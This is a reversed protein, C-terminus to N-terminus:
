INCDDDIDPEIEIEKYEIDPANETTYKELYRYIRNVDLKTIEYNEFIDIIQNDDYKTKLETFFGYLDKKDMGLQQCLNQIFLSNNYETSYKTLVKTFRVEDPNFKVKKNFTEHYMKNNKMTKILSSMENFQWIQNQFTIRDIYDAFCINELQNIYFPISDKKNIKELVDIINEHWLLGVSTRDTENMISTHEDINYYKNILKNTIKKTDDNYSKLQFINDIIDDTFISPSSNYINYINNLKRLDGQVFDVMKNQVSPEVSPLLTQVIETIQIISPTNLEVINCVKMLEKIKKDVRYNGICIIPNMTVEELKQKKTKKPRILKILTNIGGKDGNNMGDIEDMIIAIKKVKKNFLSMVNKDSMNRETIDDIVSKNRIDGADYKIIDYNLEKLINIVFLTKGTGPDGCIYLGKKFLPNTRNADFSKLINKMGEAKQERNLYKNLNLKDM